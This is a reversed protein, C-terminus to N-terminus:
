RDTRPTRRLDMEALTAPLTKIWTDFHGPDAPPHVLLKGDPQMRVDGTTTRAKLPIVVADRLLHFTDTVLLTREINEPSVLTAEPLKM